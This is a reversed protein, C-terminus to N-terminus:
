DDKSVHKVQQLQDTSLSLSITHNMEGLSHVFECTDTVHSLMDVIFRQKGVKHKVDLNYRQLKLLM